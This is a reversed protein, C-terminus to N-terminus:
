KKIVPSDKVVVPSDKVVIPSDKVVIPSDKVVVPSDTAPKTEGNGCSAFAAIAVIALVKKM